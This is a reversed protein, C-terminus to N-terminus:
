RLYESITKSIRSSGKNDLLNFIKKPVIFNKTLLNKRFFKTLDKNKPSKKKLLKIAGMKNLYNSNNLQNNAQNIVLSPLGFFIFESITSGGSSIAIDSKKILNSLSSLNYYVSTNLRGKALKKILFFNVNNIGVVVFLNLHLFEKKGLIKLIKLTFEKTDSGGMFIIVNKIKYNSKVIKKKNKYNPNLLYYKPGILKKCSQPVLIESFANSSFNQNLYINCYHNRKLDDIVMINKVYKSLEKEWQKGILYSDVILLDIIQKKKKLVNLTQHIDRKEYNKIYDTKKLIYYNFKESKLKKVFLKNLNDCIFFIKVKQSKLNKALFFSRYFHGTGVANSANVRIAINKM